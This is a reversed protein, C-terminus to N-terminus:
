SMATSAILSARLRPKRTVVLVREEVAGIGFGDAGEEVVHHFEAEFAHHERGAVGVVFRGVL